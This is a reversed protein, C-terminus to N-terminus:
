LYTESILDCFLLPCELTDCVLYLEVEEKIVEDVMIEKGPVTTFVLAHVSPYVFGLMQHERECGQLPFALHMELFYCKRFQIETM